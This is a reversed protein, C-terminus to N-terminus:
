ALRAGQALDAAEVRRAIPRRLNAVAGNGGIWGHIGGALRNAEETLGERVRQSQSGQECHTALPGVRLCATLLYSKM